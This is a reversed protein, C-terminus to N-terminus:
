IVMENLVPKRQTLECYEYEGALFSNLCQVHVLELM